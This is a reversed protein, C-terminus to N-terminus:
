EADEAAPLSEGHCAAPNAPGAPDGAGAGAVPDGASSAFAALAAWRPDIDEHRHDAPVEALRIGCDPCLGPCDPTCKPQFPLRPVITDRLLPELDITGEPTIEWLDEADEDGEAQAKVRAGPEFFMEQIFVDQTESIPALCRVCEGTLQLEVDLDVLVGEPLSQLVLDIPLASGAPVGIVETGLNPPATPCLHRELRVGSGTPLEHLAIVLGSKEPPM